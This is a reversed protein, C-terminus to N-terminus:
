QPTRKRRAIEAKLMNLMHRAEELDALYARALLEDSVKEFSVFIKEYLNAAAEYCDACASLYVGRTTATPPMSTPQGCVVCTENKVKIDEDAM